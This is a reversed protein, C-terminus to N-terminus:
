DTRALILAGNAPASGAARSDGKVVLILNNVRAVGPVSGAIREAERRSEEDPTEGILAIVGWHSRAEVKATSLAPVRALEVGIRAALQEDAQRRVAYDSSGCGAGLVLLTFSASFLLKARCQAATRCM